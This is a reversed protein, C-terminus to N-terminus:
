RAAHSLRSEREVVAIMPGLDATSDKRNYRPAFLSSVVGDFYLADRCHLRDKFYAALEHFSVPENSIVFIAASGRVGVGNRIHKSRSTPNFAPNIAGDELLLPGSQTALLVENAPASYKTSSVIQPGARTVLFSAM